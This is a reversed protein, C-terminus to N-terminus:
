RVWFAKGSIHAVLAAFVIAVLALLIFLKAASMGSSSVEDLDLEPLHDEDEEDEHLGGQQLFPSVAGDAHSAVDLDGDDAVGLFGGGLGVPVESEYETDAVGSFGGEYVEDLDDVQVGMAAAIPSIVLPPDIDDEEGEYLPEEGEVVGQGFIAGGGLPSLVDEEEMELGSDEDIEPALVADAVQMAIPSVVEVQEEEIAIAEKEVAAATAAAVAAKCSQEFRDLLEEAQEARGSDHLQLYLELLALNCVEDGHELQSRMQVFRQKANPTLTTLGRMTQHARLVIRFEPWSTLPREKMLGEAAEFGIGEFHVLVNDPHVKMLEAGASRAELIATEIKDLLLMVELDTLKGLQRLLTTLSFGPLRQESVLRFHESRWLAEAGVVAPSEETEYIPLNEDSIIYAPPLVHMRLPKSESLRVVSISYPDAAAASVQEVHYDDSLFEEPAGQSFAKQALLLRPRHRSEVAIFEGNGASAAERLLAAADHISARQRLEDAVRAVLDVAGAPSDGIVEGAALQELLHALEFVAAATDRPGEPHLMGLPYDVIRVRLRGRDDLTVRAGGAAVPLELISIAALAEALDACLGFALAQPLGNVRQAYEAVPEGDVFEVAYFRVGQDDGYDLLSALGRHDLGAVLGAQELFEDMSSSGEEASHTLAAIECFCGFRGDFALCVVREDSRSLEFANGGGDQSIEFTRFHNLDSVPLFNAKGYYDNTSFREAGGLCSLTGGPGAGGTPRPM